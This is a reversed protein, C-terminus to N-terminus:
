AKILGTFKRPNNDFGPFVPALDKVGIHKTLIEGIMSRFDTTLALDYKFKLAPIEPGVVMTYASKNHNDVPPVVPGVAGFVEFDEFERGGEFAQGVRM